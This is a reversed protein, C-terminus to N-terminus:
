RDMQGSDMQKGDPMTHTASDNGGMTSAVVAAAFVLAVVVAIVITVTRNLM